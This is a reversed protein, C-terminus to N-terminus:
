NRMTVPGRERLVVKSARLLMWYTFSNSSGRLKVLSIVTATDSPSVTADTVTNTSIVAVLSLAGTTSKDALSPSSLRFVVVTNTSFPIGTSNVISTYTPSASKPAVESSWM